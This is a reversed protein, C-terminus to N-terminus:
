NEKMMELLCKWGSWCINERIIHPFNFTYVPSLTFLSLRAIYCQESTQHRINTSVPLSRSHPPDEPLHPPHAPGCRLGLLQNGIITAPSWDLHPCSHGPGWAMIMIITDPPFRMTWTRNGSDTHYNRIAAHRSGRCRLGSRGRAGLPDTIVSWSIRNSYRGSPLLRLRPHRMIPAGWWRTMTVRMTRSLRAAMVAPPGWGPSSTSDTASLIMFFIPSFNLKNNTAFSWKNLPVFITM